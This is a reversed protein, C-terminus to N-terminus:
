HYKGEDENQNVHTFVEVIETDKTTIVSNNHYYLPKEQSIIKEISEDVVSRDFTDANTVVASVMFSGKIDM